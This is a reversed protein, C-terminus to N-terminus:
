LVFVQLWGLVVGLSKLGHLNMCGLLSLVELWKLLHKIYFDHVLSGLNHNPPASAVHYAWFRCAYGLTEPIHKSIRDQLDGVESPLMSPDLQCINVRLFADMVWLCSAAAMQNHHKVNILFGTGVLCNANTLFDVFSRHRVHIGGTETYSLVAGFPRIVQLTTVDSSTAHVNLLSDLAAATLPTKATVIAGLVKCAVAVASESLFGSKLVHEYLNDLQPLIHSALFGSRLVPKIQLDSGSGGTGEIFKVVTHAWVFSGGSHLALAQRITDNPWDQGVSYHQALSHLRRDIFMGIDEMNEGPDLSLLHVPGMAEMEAQISQEPRSTILFKVSLPLQDKQSHIASLVALPDICEDLGDLLIVIPREVINAALLPGVILDKFQTIVPSDWAASNANIANWMGDVVQPVRTSLQAAIERFVVNPDSLNGSLCSFFFSAGLHGAHHLSDSITAALSSKGTGESAQLWIIRPRGSEIDSLTLLIDSIITTRTGPSCIEMAEHGANLSQAVALTEVYDRESNYM